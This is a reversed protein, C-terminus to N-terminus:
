LYIDGNIFKPCYQLNILKNCHCWFSGNIIKPAGKLSKLNNGSCWFGDDWVKGDTSLYEKITEESYGCQICFDLVTKYNNIM